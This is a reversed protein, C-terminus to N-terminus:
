KNAAATLNPLAGYVHVAARQSSVSTQLTVVMSAEIQGTREGVFHGSATVM